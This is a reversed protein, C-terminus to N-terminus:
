CGPWSQLHAGARGVRARAWRVDSMGPPKPSELHALLRIAKEYAM